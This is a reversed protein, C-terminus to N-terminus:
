DLLFYFEDNFYFYRFNTAQTTTVVEYDAEGDAEGDYDEGYDDDDHM